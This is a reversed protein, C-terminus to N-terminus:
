TVIRIGGVTGFMVGSMTDINVPCDIRTVQEPTIVIDTTNMMVGRSSNLAFRIIAVQAGNVMFPWDVNSFQPNVGGEIRIVVDTAGAPILWPQKSIARVFPFTVRAFGLDKSFRFGWPQDGVVYDVGPIAATVHGLGDAKLIGSVDGAGGRYNGLVGSDINYANTTDIFASRVFPRGESSHVTLDAAANTSGDLQMSGTADGQWDLRRRNSWRPAKIVGLDFESGTGGGAISGDSSAITVETLGGNDPPQPVGLETTAMASHILLTGPEYLGDTPLVMVTAIALGQTDKTLSDANIADQTLRDGVGGANAGVKVSQVNVGDVVVWGYQGDTYGSYSAMLGILQGSTRQNTAMWTFGDSVSVATMPGGVSLGSGPSVLQCYRGTIVGYKPHLFRGLSGLPFLPNTTVQVLDSWTFAAGGALLLGQQQRLSETISRFFAFAEPGLSDRLSEPITSPYPNAEFKGSPVLQQVGEIKTIIVPPPPPTPVIPPEIPPDVPPPPGVPPPPPPPSPPPPPPPPPPPSPPVGLWINYQTHDGDNATVVPFNGSVTVNTPQPEGNVGIYIATAGDYGNTDAAVTNDTITVVDCEQRILIDTGTLGSEAAAQLFNHHIVANRVRALAIGNGATGMLANGMITVDHGDEGFIGQYQDGGGREIVNGQILLSETPIPDPTGENGDNAFQIADPHGGGTNDWTHFTNTKVASNRTGLLLFGDTGINHVNNGIAQFNDVNLVGAAAGLYRFENNQILIDHTNRASIGSGAYVADGATHFLCNQITIHHGGISVCYQTPTSRAFEVGDIIYGGGGIGFDDFIVTAGAAPRITVYPSAHVTVPGYFLGYSGAAMEIADGPSAGVMATYLQDLTAASFITV